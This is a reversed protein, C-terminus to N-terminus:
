GKEFLKDIHMQNHVFSEVFDPDFVFYIKVDDAFM